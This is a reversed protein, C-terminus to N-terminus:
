DEPWGKAALPDTGNNRSQVGYAKVDIVAKSRQYKNGMERGAFSVTTFIPASVEGPQLERRYTYYIRGGDEVKAWDTLNFDIHMVSPDLAESPYAMTFMEEEVRVRVYAAADGTNKVEVIKTYSDGPMADEIDELPVTRGEDSWEQLEIDVGGTTIVNHYVPSEATFYALTGGVSIAVILATVALILVKRKM